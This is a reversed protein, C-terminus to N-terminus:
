GIGHRHAYSVAAARSSVGLMEFIRSVHTSATRPSIFLVEAIEANTRGEVLLRLVEAERATLGAAV